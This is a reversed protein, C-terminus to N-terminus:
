LYLHPLKSVLRKLSLFFALTCLQKQTFYLCVHWQLPHHWKVQMGRYYLKHQLKGTSDYDIIFHPKKRYPLQKGNVSNLRGNSLILYPQQLILKPEYASAGQLPTKLTSYINPMHYVSTGSRSRCCLSNLLCWYFRLTNSCVKGVKTLYNVTSRNEERDQLQLNYICCLLIIKKM